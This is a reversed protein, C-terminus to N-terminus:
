DLSLTDAMGFVGTTFDQGKAARRICQKVNAWM